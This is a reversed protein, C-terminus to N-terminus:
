GTGGQPDPLWVLDAGRRVADRWVQRADRGQAWRRAYPPCDVVVGGEVVLGVTAAPTSVWILGSAPNAVSCM